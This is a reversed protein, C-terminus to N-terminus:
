ESVYFICRIHMNVSYLEYSKTESHAIYNQVIRRNRSCVVSRNREFGAKLDTFIHFKVATTVYGRAVKGRPYLHSAMKVRAPNM